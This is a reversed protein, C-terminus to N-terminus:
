SQRLGQSQGSVLCASPCAQTGSFRTLEAFDGKAALGEVVKQTVNAQQYCKLAAENDGAQKLLDGLQESPELKEQLSVYGSTESSYPIKLVKALRCVEPLGHAAAPPSGIITAHIAPCHHQSLLLIYGLDAM